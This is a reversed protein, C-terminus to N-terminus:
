WLAIECLLRVIYLLQIARTVWRPAEHVGLIVLLAVEGTPKSSHTVRKPKSSSDGASSGNSYLPTTTSRNPAFSM